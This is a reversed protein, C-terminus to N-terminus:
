DYYKIHVKCKGKYRMTGLSPTFAKRLIFLDGISVYSEKWEEDFVEVIKYAKRWNEVTEYIEERDGKLSLTGETFDENHEIDTMEIEHGLSKGLTVDAKSPLGMRRMPSDNLIFKLDNVFKLLEYPYVDVEISDHVYQILLSKLNNSEIYSQIDFIVAGTCDSSTGQIVYNQSKRLMSNFAGKSDNEPKIQIFRNSLELAVRHDRQVEQHREEVWKKVEPYTNFFGDYIMNAYSIDGECYTKAFSEATAGYLISNHVYVGTDPNTSSIIAFNHYDKIEFDYVSIEQGYHISEIKKISHVAGRVSKLKDGEKLNLAEVYIGSEKMWKHTPTCRFRSGDELTIRLLDRVYGTIMVKSSQGIVEKGESDTSLVKYTDQDQYM